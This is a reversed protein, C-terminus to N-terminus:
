RNTHATETITASKRLQAFMRLESRSSLSVLSISHFLPTQSKCRAKRQGDDVESAATVRIARPKEPNKKLLARFHVTIPGHDRSPFQFRVDNSISIIAGDILSGAMEAGVPPFDEVEM